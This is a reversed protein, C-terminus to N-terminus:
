GILVPALAPKLRDSGLYYAAISRSSNVGVDSSLVFEVSKRDNEAGGLDAAGLKDLENGAKAWLEVRGSVPEEPGGSVSVTVKVEDYGGGFVVVSVNTPGTPPEQFGNRTLAWDPRATRCPVCGPGWYSAGGDPLRGSVPNRYAWWMRQIAPWSMVTTPGGAFGAEREHMKPDKLSVDPPFSSGQRGRLVPLPPGARSRDSGSLHSRNSAPTVGAWGGAWSASQWYFEDITLCWLRRIVAGGALTTDTRNSGVTGELVFQDQYMGGNFGYVGAFGGASKKSTGVQLIRARLAASRGDHSVWIVPQPRWHFPVNPRRPNDTGSGYRETCAREIRAPTQYWGTGPSEKFGHAAHLAAFLGCRIDDAYYGYAASVNETEDFASSRALRRRLDSVSTTNSGIKQDPWFPKWGRPKEIRTARDLVDLFPPPVRTSNRTPSTARDGGGWGTSYNASVIRTINVEQIKWSGSGQERVFRNRFINFEWQATKSNADGIMGLELGRTTAGLGNPSVQVITEFIPHDNLIGTTLGEPGMTELASRIGEPGSHLTGDLNVSGDSMFLDVIDTWMRRDVYYGYAHQLNRVEDEENLQNIRYQVERVDLARDGRTLNRAARQMTFVQGAQDPTFHYPVIPLDGGGANKWGKEYDGAYMPYYRLLSIKWSNEVLAYENEFIGGEIRTHGAGDGLLRLAHWRGKASHGDDSLTVLPMDNILAHLSGPNLGDMKGADMRLWDEIAAPGTATAADDNKLIDGGPKGQGWRLIGDSAFLAAMDKWRGYQALQSYTRQLDKIERVSEVRSLDAALSDLDSLATPSLTAVVHLTQVLVLTGIAFKM